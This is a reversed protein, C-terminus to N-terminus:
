ARRPRGSTASSLRTCQSPTKYPLEYFGELNKRIYNANLVADETTQRLGDPGNALIYALARIFMGMNGYFARVRGVSHPRNYDWHLPNHEDVPPSPPTGAEPAEVPARFLPPCGGANADAAAIGLRLRRSLCETTRVERSSRSRCFRSLFHKCAVPGSGPRRRRSAHFVNQASQPADRRCRFRRAAGQGGSREHQRWGHLAARGQAHLIDAIKHIENEFVGLTSPNTLM